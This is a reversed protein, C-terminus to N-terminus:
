SAPTLPLNAAPAECPMQLPAADLLEQRVIAVGRPAKIGLRVHGGSLRVVMITIDAGIQIQEGECRSLVLM